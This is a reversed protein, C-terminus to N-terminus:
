SSYQIAAKKVMINYVLEAIMKDRTLQDYRWLCDQIAIKRLCEGCIFRNYTWFGGRPTKSSHCLNCEQTGTNDWERAPPVIM